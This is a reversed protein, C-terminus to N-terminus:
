KCQHKQTEEISDFIRNCMFCIRQSVKLWEADEVYPHATHLHNRLSQHSKYGCGCLDCKFQGYDFHHRDRMIKKKAQSNPAHKRGFHLKLCSLSKFAKACVDCCFPRENTHKRIHNTLEHQSRFTKPCHSCVKDRKRGHNYLHIQMRYLTSFVTGCVPCAHENVNAHVCRMHTWLTYKSRLVKNCIGCNVMDEPKYRHMRNEHFHLRYRTPM